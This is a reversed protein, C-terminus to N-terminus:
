NWLSAGASDVAEIEIDTWSTRRFRQPLESRDFYEGKQPKVSGMSAGSVGGIAGYTQSGAVGGIGASM